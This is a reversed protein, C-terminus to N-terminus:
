KALEAMAKEYQAIRESWRMIIGRYAKYEMTEEPTAELAAVKLLLREHNTIADQLLEKGIESGIAEVFPQFHGLVSLTRAGAQGKRRLFNALREATVTNEAM